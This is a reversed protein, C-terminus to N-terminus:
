YSMSYFAVDDYLKKETKKKPKKNRIMSDQITNKEHSTTVFSCAM